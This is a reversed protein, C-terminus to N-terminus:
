MTLDLKQRAKNSGFNVTPSSEPMQITVVKDLLHSETADEADIWLEQNTLTKFDQYTMGARAATHHDMKNTYRQLFTLRSVVKDLEGPASAGISAPHFMLVSRDVGYRETTYEMIMACMSACLQLNVGYVPARSAQITSIIKAGDLVSGGPSDLLLYIGKSGEENFREIEKIVANTTLFNVEDTLMVVDANRLDLKKVKINTSKIEKSVTVPNEINRVTDPLTQSKHKLNLATATLGLFTGLAVLLTKKNM